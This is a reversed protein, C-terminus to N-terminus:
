LRVVAERGDQYIWYGGPSFIGDGYSDYITFVLCPDEISADFCVTDGVSTGSALVLDEYELTWSIEGPYNDSVILVEISTEGPECQAQLGISLNFFSCLLLVFLGTNISYNIMKTEIENLGLRRLYMMELM